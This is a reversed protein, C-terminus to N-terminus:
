SGPPSCPPMAGNGWCTNFGDSDNDISSPNSTQGWPDGMVLGESTTLPVSGGSALGFDFAPAPSSVSTPGYAALPLIGGSSSPAEEIWEASLQSSKYNLTTSWTQAGTIDEMRLMWSQNKKGASVLRLSVTITDGPSISIPIKKIPSPLAEYWAYYRTGTSSADQETGLQLLSNDAVTCNTNECFGGIGVWTSSYEASFRPDPFYTVTPVVWTGQASTYTQGTAFYAAVYGSWNTSVMQNLLSRAVRGNTRRLVQISYHRPAITGEAQPVKNWTGITLFTVVLTRFIIKEPWSLSKMINAEGRLSGRLEPMGLSVLFFESSLRLSPNVAAALSGKAM